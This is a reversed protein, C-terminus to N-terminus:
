IQFAIKNITVLLEFARNLTPKETISLLNFLKINIGM